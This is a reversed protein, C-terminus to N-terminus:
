VKCVKVKVIRKESVEEVKFLFGDFEVFPTEDEHPIRGLQSIIFGGLTDYDDSPLKVDLLDEVYDLDTSGKILFTTEDIKEIQKEEEDYEDWISGVIEELLDEITVIGSTGGYEDIVVAIHSKKRKLEKLLEDTRKSAPVYYPHRLISKIDFATDPDQRLYSFLDKIHLIGIINDINDRYVPVRTYKENIVIDLVEEIDADAPLAAIDRRHTMIESVSKNDFEFINDIMEKEELQIVGNEEGLDMMMRIEEETVSEQDYSPNGGFIKIVFNTSFTLFRVFPYAIKLLFSLPKISFMSIAESKQMALRKPVLEGFVLTFYSLLITIIILSAVKILSVDIPLGYYMALDTLRDAFSEAAFASALLGSLTIGVQITALFKSPEMTLNLILKAKKDGEEAMKKIKNDNLSIIAIESSAFFANVGILLILFLVQLTLSGNETM